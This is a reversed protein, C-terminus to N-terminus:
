KRAIARLRPIAPSGPPTDTRNRSEDRLATHKVTIQHRFDLPFSIQGPERKLLQGISVFFFPYLSYLDSRNNLTRIANRKWIAYIATAWM